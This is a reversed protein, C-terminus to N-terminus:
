TIANAESTPLGTTNNYLFAAYGERKGTPDAVFDDDDAYLTFPVCTFIVAAALLAGIVTRILSLKGRVMDGM